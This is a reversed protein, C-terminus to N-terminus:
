NRPDYTYKFDEFRPHRLVELFHNVSGSWPGIVPGDVTGNKYWSTCEGTWTMGKMFEDKWENFESTAKDKVVVYSLDQTQIKLIFALAFDVEHLKGDVTKIGSELRELKSNQVHRQWWLGRMSIRSNRHQERSPEVAGHKCPKRM